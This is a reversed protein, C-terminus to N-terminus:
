DIRCICTGVTKARALKFFEPLLRLYRSISKKIKRYRRIKIIDYRCVQCQVPQIDFRVPPFPHDYLLRESIIILTSYLQIFLKLTEPLLILDESYIVVQSLLSHLIDKDCPKRVANKLRQPVSVINMM